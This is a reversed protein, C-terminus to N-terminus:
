KKKKNAPKKKAQSKRIKKKQAPTHRHLAM